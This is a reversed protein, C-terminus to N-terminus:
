LSCLSFAAAVSNPDNPTHIKTEIRTAEEAYSKALLLHIRKASIVSQITALNNYFQSITINGGATNPGDLGENMVFIALSRELLEKTEDGLKGQKM